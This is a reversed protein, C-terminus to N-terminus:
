FKMRNPSIRPLYTMTKRHIITWLEASFIENSLWFDSLSSAVSWHSDYPPPFSGGIRENSGWWGSHGRQRMSYKRGFIPLLERYRFGHHIKKLLLDNTESLNLQILTIDNSTPQSIDRIARTYYQWWYAYYKPQLHLPTARNLECQHISLRSVIMFYNLRSLGRMGLIGFIRGITNYMINENKEDYALYWEFRRWNLPGRYYEASNPRFFIM